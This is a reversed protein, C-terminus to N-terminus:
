VREKNAGGAAFLSRTQIEPQSGKLLGMRLNQLSFRIINITIFIIYKNLVSFLHVAFPYNSWLYPTIFRTIM